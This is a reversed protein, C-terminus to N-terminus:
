GLVNKPNEVLLPSGDKDELSFRWLFTDSFFSIKAIPNTKIEEGTSPDIRILYGPFLFYNKATKSSTNEGPSRM